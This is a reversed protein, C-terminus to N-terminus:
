FMASQYLAQVVGIDGRGGFQISFKRGFGGGYPRGFGGGYPGRGFGGGYPRGFGGGYPGRGGYFQGVVTVVCIAVLLLSLLSHMI